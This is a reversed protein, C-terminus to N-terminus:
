VAGTHARQTTTWLTPDATQGICFELKEVYRSSLDQEITKVEDPGLRGMLLKFIM